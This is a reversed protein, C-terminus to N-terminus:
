ELPYTKVVGTKFGGGGSARLWRRFDGGFIIIKDPLAFTPNASRPLSANPKQNTM